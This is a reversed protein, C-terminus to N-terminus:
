PSGRWGSVPCGASGISSPHPRAAGVAIAVALAFYGDANLTFLLGGLTLHIYATTLTLEVIAATLALGGL